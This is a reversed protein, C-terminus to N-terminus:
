ISNPQPGFRNNGTTGPVLMVVVAAVFGVVPAGQLLVLALVWWGSVNFDHFRQILLKVQLYIAACVWAIGVPILALMAIGNEDAGQGLMYAVLAVPLTYVVAVGLSALFYDWRGIRERASFNSHWKKISTFM